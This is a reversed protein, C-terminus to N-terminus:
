QKLLWGHYHFRVYAAGSARTVYGECLKSSSPRGCAKHGHSAVKNGVASTHLDRISPCVM